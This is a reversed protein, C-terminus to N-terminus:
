TPKQSSRSQVTLPSRSLLHCDLYVNRVFVASSDNWKFNRGTLADAVNAGGQVWWLLNLEEEEFSDWIQQVTQHLRYDRGEHLTTITDYLGKSDVNIEHQVDKSRFLHDLSTKIYIGRDDTDTYALIEAGYSSRCVSHEKGSYWNVVHFIDDQTNDSYFNLGTVIGTQGCKHSRYFNFAASSFTIVLPFIASPPLRYKLVARLRKLEKLVRKVELLDRFKLQPVKQEVYSGFYATKPLVRYVIWVLEGALKRYKQIESPSARRSQDDKEDNKAMYDKISFTIERDKTQSIHCGNLIIYDDITETSVTFRKKVNETFKKVLQVDAIVLMDDTVKALVAHVTNDDNWWVYLQSAGLVRQFYTNRLLWKKFCVAWQIWAETIGCPLKTLKWVSGRERLTISAPFTHNKQDTRITSIERSYLHSLNTKSACCLRPHRSSHHCIFRKLLWQSYKIAWLRPTRAPM